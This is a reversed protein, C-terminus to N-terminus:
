FSWWQTGDSVLSYSFDQANTSVSSSQDILDSTQITMYNASSDKKKFYFIKSVASAASPLTFILNGSTCDALLFCDTLLVTYSSTKTSIAIPGGAADAGPPGEVGPPGPPGEGGGGTGGAGGSIRLEVEDGIVLGGGPLTLIKILSSPEGSTGVEQYAGSEIDLFQGNLFVQLTGKGVTYNQPINGERSNNPLTINTGNAVPGNLSTPPTAGSAVIEIVEDYTPSDLLAEINGIADDLKKIALTLSDGDNIVNNGTGTGVQIITVAFPAGVTGNSAATTAGASNNTVTVSNSGSVASFDNFPTANLAAALKIAVVGVSDTSLIDVELTANIDTVLPASGSGNVKFWVAYYRATASSALYFYQGALITSGAGVTLTTIEPVSGPNLASVYQPSSSSATAAGIYKLLELSTTGSISVSEGNDLEQGLFRIYVKPNGGNDERMFLWFVNGGFPVAERSAVYINRTTSPTASTSYSGFAYEAQAGVAGTNDALVVNSTLTVQSLSDISLIQYYDSVTNAAIKIYDGALLGTTWSVAGVSTIVPSGSVFILNPAIPQDRILTIYAVQDDALSINTSSPNAALEYTLSSGIVRIYIPDNWNIQGPTTIVSPSYFTITIGTGTITADNSM